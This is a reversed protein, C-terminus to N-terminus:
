IEICEYNSLYQTIREKNRPPVNLYFESGDRVINLKVDGANRSFSEWISQIFENPLVFHLMVGFKDECIPLVAKYPCIRSAQDDKIGLFWVDRQLYSAFPVAIDEGAITSMITKTKLKLQFGKTNLDALLHQRALKAKKRGEGMATPSERRNKVEDIGIVEMMNADECKGELVIERYKSIRMAIGDLERLDAGIAKLLQTVPAIGEYKEAEVLESLYTKARSKLTELEDKM